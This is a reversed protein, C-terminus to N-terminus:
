ASLTKPCVFADPVCQGSHNQYGYPSYGTPNNAPAGCFQRGSHTWLQALPKSVADMSTGQTSRKWSALRPPSTQSFRVYPMADSRTRPTYLACVPMLLAGHSCSVSTNKYSRSPGCAFSVARFFSSMMAPYSLRPDLIGHGM